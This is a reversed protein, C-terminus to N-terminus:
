KRRGWRSRAPFAYGINLGIHLPFSISSQPLPRFVGKYEGITDFDRLGIGFGWYGDVTFGSYTTETMLRYGLLLSYEVKQEEASATIVQSLRQPDIMNAFHNHRTYRLEHGFYWQGFKNDPNYFKQRLSFTYGRRFLDRISVKDNRRFFPDRIGRIELEYGLREQFYLELSVPFVGVLTALPNSALILGHFENVKADFYKFKKSRFRFDAVGGQIASSDRITLGKSKSLSDFRPEKEYFPRYYGALSGNGKYLEWVGIREDDKIIGKTKPTVGDNYYGTYEGEGNEFNCAGQLTGDPYYYKWLGENKDDKITGMLKLAGEEYYEKYEGSGNVFDGKGKLTGSPYFLNWEGDKSGNAFNGRSNVHGERDYYEWEGHAVNNIFAGKAAITGSPHFYQWTGSKEGENYGGIAQVIGNEHFFTWKGWNKGEVKMGQSQVKQSHYYGVYLASDSAYAAKGKVQGTKHFDKWFGDRQGDRYNGESELEGSEYYFTWLGMRKGARIEGSMSKNGNEYYYEWKGVTKNNEFRGKMKPKGSEYYFIWLGATTDNVFNGKSELNGNLFFSRYEGELASGEDGLTYYSEKVQTRADDHYTKQLVSQALADFSFLTLLLSTYTLLHKTM